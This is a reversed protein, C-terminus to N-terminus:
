TVISGGLVDHGSSLALFVFQTETQPVHVCLKLRHQKLRHLRSTVGIGIDVGTSVWWGSVVLEQFRWSVLRNHSQKLRPSHCLSM